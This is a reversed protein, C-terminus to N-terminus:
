NCQFARELVSTSWQNALKRSPSNLYIERKILQATILLTGNTLCRLMYWGKAKKSHLLLATKMVKFDSAKEHVEVNVFEM